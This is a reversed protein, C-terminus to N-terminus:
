FGRPRGSTPKLPVEVVQITDPGIPLSCSTGQIESTLRREAVHWLPEEGPINHCYILEPDCAVSRLAAGGAFEAGSIEVPLEKGEAMTNVMLFAISKRGPDLAAIWEVNGKIPPVDKWSGGKNLVERQANSSGYFVASSWCSSNRGQSDLTGHELIIPHGVLADTFIRYLPAAPGIQYRRLGVGGDPDPYFNYGQSPDSQFFFGAKWPIGPGTSCNMSVNLGGSYCGFSHLNIGDVNPQALVSLMYHAKWLTSAFMQHCRVDEDSRERWETIWVRKGAIQPYIEAFRRIRAFGSASCGYAADAGYFHYIVHSISDLQNSMAVVFRGSWQNFRNIQFPGGGAMMKKEGLRKRVVELDPDGAQYEAIPIGIKVEPWLKKIEPIIACWRAAYAEPDNGFYPENGLEFGAVVDKFKNDIIWKVYRCIVAKVVELDGSRKQACKKDPWCSYHELTFLVKVGLKKWLSWYAKPNAHNWQGSMGQQWEDLANWQRLFRAGCDRFARETDKIGAGYAWPSFADNYLAVETLCGAYGLDPRCTSDRQDKIPSANVDISITVALFAMGLIM